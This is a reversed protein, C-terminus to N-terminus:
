IEVLVNSIVYEGDHSVSLHFKAGELSIMEVEGDVTRTSKKPNFVLIPKPSGPSKIISLEKWIPIYSPYLAKYTAEKATWRFFQLSSVFLLCDFLVDAVFEKTATVKM